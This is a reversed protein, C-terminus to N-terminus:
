SELPNFYRVLKNELAQVLFHPDNNAEQLDYGYDRPFLNKIRRVDTIVERWRADKILSTTWFVIAYRVGRTVEKVCHPVGTDYTLAHGAPLAFKKEEDNVFMTLEGGEYFSPDSLFITTSFDGNAPVDHHAQFGQGVETKSVIAYTSHKPFVFDRFQADRGIANMAIKYIERRNDCDQMESNTQQDELYINANTAQRDWQANSMLIHIQKVEEETLLQRSYLKM